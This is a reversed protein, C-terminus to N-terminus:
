GGEGAGRPAGRGALCQLTLSAIVMIPARAIKPNPKCRVAQIRAQQKMTEEKKLTVMQQQQAVLLSTKQKEVEEYNRRM